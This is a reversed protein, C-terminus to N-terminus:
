ARAPWTAASDPTPTRWPRLHLVGLFPQTANVSYTSKRGHGTPWVGRGLGQLHERRQELRRVGPVVAVVEAPAQPEPGARQVRDQDPQGLPPAQLRAPDIGLPGAPRGAVRVAQRGVAPREGSRTQRGGTGAGPQRPLPCSPGAGAHRGPTRPPLPRRRATTRSARRGTAAPTPRPAAHPAPPRRPRGRGAATPLPRATAPM